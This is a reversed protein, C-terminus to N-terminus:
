SEETITVVYNITFLHRKSSDQIQGLHLVGSRRSACHILYNSSGITLEYLHDGTAVAQALNNLEDLAKKIANIKTYGTPYDVSRVRIMIGYHEQVEGDISTRGTIIGSTDSVTIVNDPQEPENAIYAPWARGSDPLSALSEVVLLRAVVRSPPNNTLVISM